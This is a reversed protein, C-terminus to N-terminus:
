KLWNNRKASKINQNYDSFNAITDEKDYESVYKDRSLLLLRVVKMISVMDTRSAMRNVTKKRVLLNHVRPKKSISVGGKEIKRM